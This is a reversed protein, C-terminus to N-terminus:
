WSAGEAVGQAPGVREAIPCVVDYRGHVIVGPIDAIGTRTACCSTRSRSSAATSSTTTRSARSPWRSRPTRTAPQRLGPRRAPLQDRRGVREVRARRGPAHSRRRLDPPSPLRSILDHREVPPIARSTTSGRTRSCARPAKRTSGSWSGAACCSSAACCWNPSASRIRKPTPWRWRRAGAFRRVGALARHRAARAADRHRRGPGLHHQRGPGRAADLARQRAPRVPRHPVEGSRPLAADEASCGAGPGGHLM